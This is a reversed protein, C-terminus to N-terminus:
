KAALTVPLNYGGLSVEGDVPPTFAHGCGRM